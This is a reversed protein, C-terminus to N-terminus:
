AAGFRALIPTPSRVVPRGTLREMPLKLSTMAGSMMASTEIGRM